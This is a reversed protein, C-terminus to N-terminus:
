HRPQWRVYSYARRAATGPITPGDVGAQKCEGCTGIVFSTGCYSCGEHSKAPTAKVHVTKPYLRWATRNIFCEYRSPNRKVQAITKQICERIIRRGEPISRVKRILRALNQRQLSGIAPWSDYPEYSDLEEDSLDFLDQDDIFHEVAQVAEVLIAYHKGVTTVRRSRLSRLSRGRQPNAKKRLEARYKASPRPYKHIPLTTM